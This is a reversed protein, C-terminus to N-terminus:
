KGSAKQYTFDGQDNKKSVCTNKNMSKRKWKFYYKSFIGEINQEVEKAVYKGSLEEM